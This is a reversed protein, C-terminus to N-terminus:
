GVVRRDANGWWVCRVYQDKVGPEVPCITQIGKDNCVRLHGMQVTQPSYIRDSGCGFNTGVMYWMASNLSRPGTWTDARGLEVM